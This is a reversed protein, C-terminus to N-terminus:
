KYFSEITHKYQYIHFTQIILEIEAQNKETINSSIIFHLYYLFDFFKFGAIVVSENNDKKRGTIQFNDTKGQKDAEKSTMEINQAQFIDDWIDMLEEFSIEEMESKQHITLKITGPPNHGEFKEDTLITKVTWHKPYKFSIKSNNFQSFEGTYDLIKIPTEEDRDKLSNIPKNVLNDITDDIKKRAEEGREQVYPNNELSIPNIRSYTLKGGCQCSEFDAPSEGEQLEYYGKCKECILYGKLM